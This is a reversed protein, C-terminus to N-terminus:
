ASDEFPLQSFEMLFSQLWQIEAEIMALSLEFMADVQYPLPIGQNAQRAILDTKTERLNSLYAHFAALAQEKSLLPLNSLGIQIPLHCPEPRSLATLVANQWNERGSETLEYVKRSPGKGSSTELRSCITGAKELKNLVYYISSFGIETWNRMGRQEIIQEIDYGHRPREALLSLIALESNTTM